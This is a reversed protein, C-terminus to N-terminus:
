NLPTNHEQICQLMYLMLLQEHKIEQKAHSCEVLVEYKNADSLQFQDQEVWRLIDSSSYAKNYLQTVLLMSPPSDCMKPKKRMEKKHICYLNTAKGRFLPLPVYIDCFRSLIPKLLQHKNEVIMFIRTSHSFLEICRRLASQADMTLHDANYMVIIKLAHEGVVSQMAFLKLEERVFKIGKGHACNVRMVNRSIKDANFDYVENVFNNALTSKGGGSPGHFILHPIQQTKRFQSLKHIIESHVRM